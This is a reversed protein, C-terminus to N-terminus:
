ATAAAFLDPQNKGTVILNRLNTKVLEGWAGSCDGYCQFAPVLGAHTFRVETKDGKKAIDFIIETGIWEAKNTFSNLEAATVHWVVRSGPVLEAVKQKSYHFTKYRYEFEGGLKDTAGEIKGSWWGRVNNIARYVEEPTQEVTFTTTFSQQGM